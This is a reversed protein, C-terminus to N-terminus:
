PQAPSCGAEELEDWRPLGLTKPVRIARITPRQQLATEAAGETRDSSGPVAPRLM